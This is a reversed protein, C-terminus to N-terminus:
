YKREKERLEVTMGGGFRTFLHHRMGATGGVGLSRLQREAEGAFITELYCYLKERFRERQAVQWMVTWFRAGDYLNEAYRHDVQGIVEYVLECHEEFQYYSVSSTDSVDLTKLDLLDNRWLNRGYKDGFKKRCWSFIKRDVEEWTIGKSKSGWFKEAQKVVEETDNKVM